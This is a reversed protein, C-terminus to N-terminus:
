KKLNIWLENGKRPAISNYCPEISVKSFYQSFLDLYEKSNGGYPPGEKLFHTAFLLGVYKGGLALLSHIKEVYAARQSPHLACFMTQEIILKYSGIHLFIDECVVKLPPAVKSDLLKDCAASAFDLATVDTFGSQVLYIAEHGFGCGPILISIDKDTLQDFYSQLPISIHSIDWGTDGQIYRQQWYNEDHIMGFNRNLPM